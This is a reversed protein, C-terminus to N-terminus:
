MRVRESKPDYMPKLSAEATVIEGAVDISYDFSLIEENSLNKSDVYGLGICGGLTHGFNGSTLYGVIKNDRLVPENHYIMKSPDNLKFQLMKKSSGIKRKTLISEKGEFNKKSLDATFSLGADVIHDEDTIDHGFHRYAKEIRCSDLAHIGCLNFKMEQQFKWIEEFVHACQDSSIYIEWGLEGVYSVRHARALGSGIEINKWTGFPHASNSFNNPSVCELLKRSNPGMISLVGESSSIDIIMVENSNNKRNLYSLDRQLTACPVVLLFSKEGLRSITLDSEIGGKENLMQTYVIRGIQINIQATCIEQLFNLAGEGDVRIKGFSSMDFIGINQRVATHEKKQNEFWNQKGWSYQYEPKQNFTSFWNAREYGAVEGFVAGLDKLYNHFPSRRINRSTKPQLYPFHDAYLLGLSETVREKLYKRNIQFPEARRLDVEWLDFPPSGNDIWRALAMGAGGSSIIGISNYGAAVCYGKCTNAEGLYYRTDPTFSEPGNFFTRIGVNNLLPMRKLGLSLIPEFHEIDEPLQDFCFDDPIGEMGWAKAKPEFAGLMMKGADEKYYACEDPVRLVPLQKLNEIPETVIYFHECAHLPINVGSKLGLERAWMGACNVIVDSSIIGKEGNELSYHIGKACDDKIIVDDVKINELIQVGMNRAGKALALAINAPDAQGDKPLFVGSIVDETYLIPYKEKVEKPSIEHVEVNFARALAAQRQLEEKRSETLAVTISGTQRMGTEIGTEDALNVYLDASYKALRTMNQSNRLQGILGAAHWTTGSTLKKRELLIVDKWGLKALHYAVSCGSVGGGIIIARGIKPIIM